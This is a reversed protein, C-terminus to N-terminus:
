GPRGQGESTGRSSAQQIMQTFTVSGTLLVVSLRRELAHLSGGERFSWFAAYVFLVTGAIGLGLAVPRLWAPSGDLGQPGGLGQSLVSSGDRRERTRRRIQVTGLVFLVALGAVAILLPLRAEMWSGADPGEPLGDFYAVDSMVAVVFVVFVVHEVLRLLGRRQRRREEGDRTERDEDSGNM